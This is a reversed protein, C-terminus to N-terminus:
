VKMLIKKEFLKFWNFTKFIYSLCGYKNKVIPITEILAWRDIIGIYSTLRRLNIYIYKLFNM